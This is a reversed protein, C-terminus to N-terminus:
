SGVLAQIGILAQMGILTLSRIWTIFAALSLDRGCPRHAYTLYASYALETFIRVVDCAVSLCQIM